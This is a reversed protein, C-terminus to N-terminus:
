IIKECVFRTQSTCEIDTWYLCNGAIGVMLCDETRCENGNNNNDPQPAYFRIFTFSLGTSM